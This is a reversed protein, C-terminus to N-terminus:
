HHVPEIWATETILNEMSMGALEATTATDPREQAPFTALTADGVIFVNFDQRM